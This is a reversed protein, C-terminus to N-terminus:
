VTRRRRVRELEEKRGKRFLLADLVSEHAKEESRVAERQREVAELYASLVESAEGSRVQAGQAALFFPPVAELLASLAAPLPSPPEGAGKRRAINNSPHLLYRTIYPTLLLHALLEIRFPKSLHRILPFPLLYRVACGALEYSVGILSSDRIYSPRHVFRAHLLRRFLFLSPPTMKADVDALPNDLPSSCFEISLYQCASFLETDSSHLIDLWPQSLERLSPELADFDVDETVVTKELAKQAAHYQEDSIYQQQALDAFHKLARTESRSPFTLKVFFPSSCSFVTEAYRSEIWCLRFMARATEFVLVAPVTTGFVVLSLPLIVLSAVLV